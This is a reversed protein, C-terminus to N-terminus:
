RYYDITKQIGEEFSNKPKWGLVESTRSIDARHKKVYNDRPNEIKEPEIDTGLKENLVEVVENFTVPNGTGINFVEGNAENIRQSAKIAARVVDEVYTLDREQTGDGWIVTKGWGANEV